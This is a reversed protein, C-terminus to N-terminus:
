ISRSNQSRSVFNNFEPSSTMVHATQKIYRLVRYPQVCEVGAITVLRKTKLFVTWGLGWYFAPVRINM